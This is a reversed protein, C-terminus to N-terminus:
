NTNRVTHRSFVTETMQKIENMLIQKMTQSIYALTDLSIFVPFMLFFYCFHTLTHRTPTCTNREALFFAVLVFGLFFLFFEFGTQKNNEICLYRESWFLLLFFVVVTYIFCSYIFLDM